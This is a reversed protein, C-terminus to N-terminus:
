PEKFDGKHEDVHMKQTVFHFIGLQFKKPLLQSCERHPSATKESGHQDHGVATILRKM